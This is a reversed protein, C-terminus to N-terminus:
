TASLSLMALILLAFSLALVLADRAHWRLEDAQFPCAGISLSSAIAVVDAAALEGDVVAAAVSADVLAHLATGCGMTRM